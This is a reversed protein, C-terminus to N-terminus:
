ILGKNELSLRRIYKRKQKIEPVSVENKILLDRLDLLVELFLPNLIAYNGKSEEEIEKRSRM